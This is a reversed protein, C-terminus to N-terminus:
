PAPRSRVLIDSGLTDSRLTFAVLSGDASISPSYAVGTGRDALTVTVSATTAAVFDRVFVDDATDNPVLNQACSSFALYRGDASM